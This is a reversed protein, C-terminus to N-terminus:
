HREHGVLIQLSLPKEREDVFLMKLSHENQHLIAKGSVMEACVLGVGFDKAILRFASNCVGTMPALVVPNNLTIDGIRLM